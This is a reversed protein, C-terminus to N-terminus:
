FIVSLTLGGWLTDAEGPGMRGRYVERMDPYQKERFNGLLASYAICGSALWRESIKMPATLTVNFDHLGAYSAGYYYNSFGSNVAGISSSIDFGSFVRHTLPFSRAASIRLYLGTDARDGTEDVDVFLTAAPSFPISSFAYGTYIETTSPLVASREPFTYIVAGASVTGKGAAKSFSLTYDIESFKGLLGSPQNAPNAGPNSPLLLHPAENVAALDLIGWVNLSIPGTGATLSPQWNWDNTLRQGRWVYTSVFASDGRFSLEPKKSQEGDAATGPLGQALSCLISLGPVICSLFSRTMVGTIM